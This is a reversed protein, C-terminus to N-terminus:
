KLTPDGARLRAIGMFAVPARHIHEPLPATPFVQNAVLTVKAV